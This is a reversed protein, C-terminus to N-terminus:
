GLREQEGRPFIAIIPPISTVPKGRFAARRYFKGGPPRMELLTADAELRHNLCPFAPKWGIGLRCSGFGPTHLAWFKL